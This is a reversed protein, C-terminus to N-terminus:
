GELALSVRDGGITQMEGLLQVVQEYKLSRSPQLLVAGKPNKVLYDQMAAMLEERTVSTQAITIQGGPNLEVILPEPLVEQPSPSVRNSPIAVDVAQLNRLTATIMVFFALIGMMVNMMPILNIEPIAGYQEPKKRSPM